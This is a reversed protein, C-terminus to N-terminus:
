TSGEIRGIEPCQRWGNGLRHSIQEMGRCYPTPPLPSLGLACTGWEAPLSLGMTQGLHTRVATWYVHLSPCSWIRHQIDATPSHCRPFTAQAPPFIKNIKQPTLHARNLVFFQLLKFRTNRSVSHYTLVSNSWIKVSLSSQKDGEWQTQLRPWIM